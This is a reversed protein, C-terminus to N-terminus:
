AKAAERQVHTVAEPLSVTVGKDSCEKMYELAKDSIQQATLEGGGGGSGDDNTKVGLKVLAPRAAMFDAFFQSATKKVTGDGKSFEFQQESGELTTMFEALGSEEAPTVLGKAKWGNIQTKVRERVREARLEAVEQGQASFDAQLKNAQATAKDIQEQAKRQEEARASAVAKDLDEQTLPMAAGKTTQSFELADESASNFSVPTLGDIAPPVAGLWGVHRVRWGLKDDKVVALSRNRYAGTRVGAEFAPNLDSFKAWLSDGIRQFEAWGYAPANDKPHGIVAPAKSAQSNVAMQDLDATTFSCARGKSDTHEGARFVEILDDFGKFEADTTRTNAATTM